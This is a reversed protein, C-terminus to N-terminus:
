QARVLVQVWGRGEKLGTLAQGLVAFRARDFDTVKMAHGPTGSTTLLDGPEIAGFSADAYCWVQGTLAVPQEGDAEPNGEQRLVLGSKVGNGGSIIGVRKRDYAEDALKFKRNGSPDISVVMGPAINFEDGPRVDTVSLHEALDAGGIIRLVRVETTGDTDVAVGQATGGRGIFLRNNDMFIRGSTASEPSLLIIGASVGDGRQVFQFAPETGDGAEFSLRNDELYIRGSPGSNPSTIMIGADVGDGRQVFQFAPDTGNGAEFSLRNDKLYIRASPGSNPSTIMVGHDLGDGNQDLRVPPQNTVAPDAIIHLVNDSSNTGIGVTGTVSLNGKITKGKAVVNNPAGAVALLLAFITVSSKGIQGLANMNGLREM